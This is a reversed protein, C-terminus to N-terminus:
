HASQLVDNRSVGKHIAVSRLIAALTGVRLTRHQPVVIRHLAPTETQLTVHSSEQHIVKYDWDRCLVRILERGSLDRPLKM